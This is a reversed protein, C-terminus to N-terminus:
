NHFEEMSNKIASTINDIQQINYSGLIGSVTTHLKIWVPSVSELLEYGTETLELVSHRSDEGKNITVWTKDVLKKLDRSLTSQDLLLVDAIARQNIYKNKGIIFLISLMSGQLGFPKLKAEYASAILRHLRRLKANVCLHPDVRDFHPTDIKDAQIM